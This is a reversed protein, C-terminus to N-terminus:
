VLKVKSVHFTPHVRMSRPLKFPGIFKPALKKSEVRLPLDCTSLWVKQGVQYEPAQSRRRNAASSYRGAAKLLFARARAWTRHCRHLFTQLSPCSAEKELAPFLPPQYGYACQFPSLGTASSTLTNYAYEGWLLQQSWSSPNQSVTCRLATETQQNMRETQGNSQPHFGSSLSPTDGLM